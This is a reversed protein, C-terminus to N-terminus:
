RGPREELPEDRRLDDFLLEVLATSLLDVVESIVLTELNVQHDWGAIAREGKDLGFGGARDRRRHGLWENAQSFGDTPVVHRTEDNVASRGTLRRERRDPRAHLGHRRIPQQRDQRRPRLTSCPARVRPQRSSPLNIRRTGASSQAPGGRTSVPCVSGSRETFRGAPPLEM